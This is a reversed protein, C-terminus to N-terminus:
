LVTSALLALLSCSFTCLFFAFQQSHKCALYLNHKSKMNSEVATTRSSQSIESMQEM